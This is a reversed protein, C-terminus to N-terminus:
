QMFTAPSMRKIDSGEVATMPGWFEGTNSRHTKADITQPGLPTEITLGELAAVLADAETTGAKRIAEALFYVAVYTQVPYMNTEKQGELKALAKQFKKHGESGDHYWLDYANSWFGEPYDSKLNNAMESSGAEAGWVFKKTKFLGFPSAQKIFSIFGGGWIAGAVTDCESGMMQSIVASFDTTGLKVHYTGVVEIGDALNKELSEYLDHTYAYDYGSVCVKKAGLKSLITAMGRGESETTASTQFIYKHKKSETLAISKAIPAILVIKEQKALESISLTAGSSVAGLLVDVGEKTILERAAATAVDPKLQSDRVIYELMKGDVGGAANIEEVALKIGNVAPAGYAAGGGSVPMLVGIKITEGAYASGATLLAALATGMVKSKLKNIM